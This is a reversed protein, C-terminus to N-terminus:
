CLCGLSTQEARPMTPPPPVHLLRFRAPGSAPARLAPPPIIPCPPRQRYNPAHLCGAASM